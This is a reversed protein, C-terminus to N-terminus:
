RMLLRRSQQALWSGVARRYFPLFAVTEAQDRVDQETEGLADSPKSKQLKTGPAAPTSIAVCDTMNYSKLMETIYAQHTLTITGAELDHKVQMGLYYEGNLKKIPFTAEMSTEFALKQKLCKFAARFDDVYLAILALQGDIRRVYLCPDVVTAKFGQSVIFGAAMANWNFASQKLGNLSTELRLAYGPKRELGQPIKMYVEEKLTPITFAADVDYLASHLGCHVTLCLMLFVSTMNVAPAAVEDPDYDLGAIQSFGQPCVRSKAYTPENNEDHKFKHAWTVGIAKRGVPLEVLSVSDSDFLHRLEKIMSTVLRPDKEAQHYPIKAALAEEIVEMDVQYAEHIVQRDEPLADAFVEEVMEVYM